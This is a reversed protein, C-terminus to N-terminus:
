YFILIIYIIIIIIIIIIIYSDPIIESQAKRYSLHYLM